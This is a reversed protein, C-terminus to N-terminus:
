FLQVGAYGVVRSTDGSVDASTGYAVRRYGHLWDLDQLAQMVITAPVVGCMSIHNETVTRYLREADLSEMAALAIEDVIRTEADDAFHNMDSSIVLLPPRPCRRIVEALGHAFRRCEALGAGGVAVGVIRCGPRLRALLPLEVEIAHEQRHAAADFELGPIARVLQESLDLDAALSGGPFQWQAHPAIAWDVGHLTHKPGLLIVTESLGSFDTEALVQAAIRGSYRWGAHPLMAARCAARRRELGALMEDLARDVENPDDPYFSGAVAPRRVAGGREARPRHVIQVPNQTTHARFSYVPTRLADAFPLRRRGEDLLEVAPRNHDILWASKNRETLVIARGRPEEALDCQAATGALAPDDLITLEVRWNALAAGRRVTGGLRERLASAASEVLEALTAQLPAGPRVSLKSFHLLADGSPPRVSLTVGNVAGDYAGFLYYNLTDGALARELNQRCHGVLAALDAATLGAPEGAIAAAQADFPGRISIGEFVALEAQSNKWAAPPLGAKICVQRLFAEPTYGHEVAVGPLLLGRKDGCAIQLGHRGVEVAQARQEGQQTVPQPAALLWVEIELRRLETPSLPPLRLDELATRAASQSLAEILRFSRGIAGCCGRLQGFRKASVFVGWVPAEAAAGLSDDALVPKRRAVAASILECAARHIVERQHSTLENVLTSRATPAADARAANESSSMRQSKITEAPVVAISAGSPASRGAYRAMRVPLRKRGWDGPSPEFCGAISERCTPCRGPGGAAEVELNWAGLEHWDREILLNKCRPCRTSQRAVDNVNGVYVYKLGARQACDYAANLTEAPTRPRDTLKYDPHFATFHVPTDDGVNALIWDCMRELEGPSDNAQPILLNTIEFWVSTERKLWKLTDLVPALHSLTLHQYFEETFGKLDVNAADMAAFFPQRAQATIYGATVAITKVGAARCERATDIAYEAWIVPDNYTFAVARCGLDVAAQAIAAPSASESLRAVERSKSIDHNQCFKCGLNCGATGFSLVAVGPLFHNLPKKEIPDICFGTSRGYTSLVMQGDRNERVFCFGRDGPKLHCERPCLDCVIRQDVPDTRWWGGPMAGDPFAPGAPPLNVARIM